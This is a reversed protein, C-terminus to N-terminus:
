NSVELVVDAYEKALPKANKMACGLGCVKLMEKDNDGDGFSVVNELSINYIKMVENLCSGKDVAPALFEVFYPDPSGKIIHFLGEPLVDYADQMLSDPDNTLIIVKPSLCTAIAIDYNEIFVQKRATLTAYRNLLDLHADNLPCAYVDGTEGNYYQLCLGNKAALAILLKISSEPVPNSSLTTVKKSIRDISCGFGGNFAVAPITDQNINLKDIYSIVSATTRGTAISILIGKDALIKLINSTRESVEHHNNLTTGDLDLAVAKIKKLM